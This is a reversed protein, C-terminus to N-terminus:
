FYRQPNDIVGNVIVVFHVHPGTCLGTCGVGAIGQGAFVAQGTTVWISGLHNYLTQMGNGHDIEIVYGGGNSRWGASAVVGDQAALVQSGYDAAIDIALHGAHFYQSISGAPVPWVLGGVAPQPAVARTTPASTTVGGTATATVAGGPAPLPTADPDLPVPTPMPGLQAAVPPAGRNVFAAEDSPLVEFSSAAVPSPQDGAGRVSSVLNLFGTAENSPESGTSANVGAFSAVAVLVVVTLHAILRGPLASDAIRRYIRRPNPL